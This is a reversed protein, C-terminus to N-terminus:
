IKWSASPRPRTKSWRSKPKTIRGLRTASNKPSTTVCHSFKKSCRCMKKRRWIVRSSYLRKRTDERTANDMVTIYHWTINAMVTYEDDGSKIQKLFDEPVGDLEAKTFKLSKEAKTIDTDFDTTLRSLEKRMREVEDRDAKPLELGARRYDRMTESLLKADEGELRPKTDAYAKVARYVDERYDLSVMWEELEKLSDTAADRVAADTSTEKILSLRNDVLGLQFELDDLARVTNTFTM